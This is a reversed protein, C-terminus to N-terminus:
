FLGWFEHAMGEPDELVEEENDEGDTVVIDDQGDDSQPDNPILLDRAETNPTSIDDGLIENDVIDEDQSPSAQMSIDNEDEGGKENESINDDSSAANPVDGSVESNEETTLKRPLEAVVDSTEESIIAKGAKPTLETEPEAGDVAAVLTDVPEPNGSILEHMAKLVTHNTVTNADQTKTSANSKLVAERELTVLCLKQEFITVIFMRGDCVSSASSTKNLAVRDSSKLKFFFPNKYKTLPHRPDWLMLYRQVLAAFVLADLCATNRCVFFPKMGELLDFPQEDTDHPNKEYILNKNHFYVLNLEKLKLKESLACKSYKGSEYVKLTEWDDKINLGKKYLIMCGDKEATAKFCALLYHSSIAVDSVPGYGCQRTTCKTPDSTLWVHLFGQADGSAAQAGGDQLALATVQTGNKQHKTYSAESKEFQATYCPRNYVDVIGSTLAAILVCSNNSIRSVLPIDQEDGFTQFLKLDARPYRM